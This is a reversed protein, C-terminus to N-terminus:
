RNRGMLILAVTMTELLLSLLLINSLTQPQGRYLYAFFLGAIALVQTIGALLRTVSFDNAPSQERRRVEHLIAQVGQNIESLEKGTSDPFGGAEDQAATIFDLAAGLSSVVADAAEHEVGAAEPSASVSPDSLFITKVGAARGAQIDRAADGILWSRSLDLNLVRAASLIMGPGPKRRDTVRRYELVAAQPHDPCFEHRDITALPNDALLLQELRANVAQVDSETFLGRAVGSQNSVTVIAFGMKRGRAIADAAGPMLRVGTPDGLYGDNVILTNDRDFFLAPRSLM